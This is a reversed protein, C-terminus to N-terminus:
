ERLFLADAQLMYGTSRDEYGPELYRLRLGHERVFACLTLWDAQGDYLDTFSLEAQVAFSDTLTREAGALVALEHGQVDLKIWYQGHGGAVAVDLTDVSVEEAAITRSRPAASLHENAVAHLSSSVSNQSVHLTSTGNASSLAVHRADWLPDKSAKQRLIAFAASGPEFSVIQGKFGVDRLREAYQGVNAGVDLATVGPRCLLRRQLAPLGAALPVIDYGVRRSFRRIVTKATATARQAM